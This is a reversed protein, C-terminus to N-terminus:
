IHCSDLGKKELYRQHYEEARYFPKAPEISTVIPNRFKGSKGLRARIEEATKKQSKNHYFIVSHYQTGMDLGQRNPTTPNHISFFVEVLKAYSVIKPDFKVEVAEAHGTKDTCVDEYTPNKMAGGCYGSVADIVGHIKRFESEVGWFCGAGFTALSYNKDHNGDNAQKKKITPM